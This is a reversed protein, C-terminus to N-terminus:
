TKLNSITCSQEKTYVDICKIEIYKTYLKSKRIQLYNKKDLKM